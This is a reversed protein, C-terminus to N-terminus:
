VNKYSKTICTGFNDASTMKTTRATTILSKQRRPHSATYGLVPLINSCCSSRLHHYFEVPFCSTLNCSVKLKILQMM